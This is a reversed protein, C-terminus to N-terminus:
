RLQSSLFEAVRGKADETAIANPAITVGRGPHVGNPVETRVRLGKLAPNDFDHYTDPYTVIQMAGGQAVVADTLAQCPAAPTWDDSEGILLLLPAYPKFSHSRANRRACGPYFSVAAKFGAMATPLTNIADLVVGGGHSWGLIAVHDGDVQPLGRLFALTAYADGVRDAEKLPRDRLPTTCIQTIGRPTFSDLMVTFYGLRALYDGWMQHRPNLSGAKSYAGGCGHLMVVAPHKGVHGQPEFVYGKLPAGANSWYGVPIEVVQASAPHVPAYSPGKVDAVAAWSVSCGLAFILHSFFHM